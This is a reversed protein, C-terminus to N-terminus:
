AFMYSVLRRTLGDLTARVAAVDADHRVYAAGILHETRDDRVHLAVASNIVTQDDGGQIKHCWELELTLHEPLLSQVAAITGVCAATLSDDDVIDGFGTAMRGDMDLAVEVSSRDPTLRIITILPRFTPELVLGDHGM